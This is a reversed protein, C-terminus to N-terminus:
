WITWTASAGGPSTKRFRYGAVALVVGGIEAYALLYGQAQQRQVRGVFEQELLHPRLQTMVPFCRQITAPTDALAIAIDM